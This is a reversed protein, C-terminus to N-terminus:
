APIFGSDTLPERVPTKIPALAESLWWAQDASGSDVTPYPMVPHVLDM